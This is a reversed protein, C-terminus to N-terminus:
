RETQRDAMRDTEKDCVMKVDFFKRVIMTKRRIGEWSSERSYVNDIM